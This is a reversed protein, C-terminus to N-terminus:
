LLRVINPHDLDALIQRERLFRRRVADGFIGSGLIKLAATKTFQGDAREVLYVVSMGGRGIEKTIRWAGLCAPAEDVAPEEAMWRLALTPANDNFLIDSQEQAQLLSEIEERLAGNGACSEELFRDREAGRRLSAGEFVSKMRAWRRTPM